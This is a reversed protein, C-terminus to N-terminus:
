LLQAYWHQADAYKRNNFHHKTMIYQNKYKTWYLYQRQKAETKLIECDWLTMGIPWMDHLRLEMIGNQWSLNKANSYKM